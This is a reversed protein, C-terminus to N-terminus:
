VIRHVRGYWKESMKKIQNRVVMGQEEEIKNDYMDGNLRAIIDDYVVMRADIQKESLVEKKARHFSLCDPCTVSRWFASLLQDPRLIGCKPITRGSLTGCGRRKHVVKM